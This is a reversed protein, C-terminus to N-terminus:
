KITKVLTPALPNDASAYFVYTTDHVLFNNFHRNHGASCADDFVWDLTLNDPTMGSKLRDGDREFAECDIGIMFPQLPASTSPYTFSAASTVYGASTTHTDVVVPPGAGLAIAIKDDDYTNAISTGSPVGISVDSTIDPVATSYNVYTVQNFNLGSSLTSGMAKLTEAYAEIHSKIGSIPYQTEGNILHFSSFENGTSCSITAATKNTLYFADRPVALVSKISRCASMLPVKFTLQSSPCTAHIHQYAESQIQLGGQISMDNRIKNKISSEVRISQMQFKVNTLTFGPSTSATILATAAQELEIRLTLGGTLFLPILSDSGMMGIDLPLIYERNGTDAALLGKEAGVLSYASCGFFTGTTALHSASMKWQLMKTMYVNFSDLEDITAGDPGTLVIKRILSYASYDVNAVADGTNTLKFTLYCERFDVLDGTLLFEIPEGAEFSTSSIPSITKVLPDALIAYKAPDYAIGSPEYLAMNSILTKKKQQKHNTKGHSM